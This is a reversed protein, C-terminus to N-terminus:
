GGQGRAFTRELQNRTPRRGPLRHAGPAALGDLAIRAQRRALEDWNSVHPLPQALVATRGPPARLRVM